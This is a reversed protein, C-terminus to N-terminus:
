VLDGLLEALVRDRKAKFQRVTLRAHLIQQTGYGLHGIPLSRTARAAKSDGDHFLVVRQRRTNRFHREITRRALDPDV